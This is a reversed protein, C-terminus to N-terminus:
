SRRVAVSELVGLMAFKTLLSSGGSSVFPLTVGTVPLLRLNGGINVFLELSVSLLIGLVLFLTFDDGSGLALRYGRFIIIGFLICIISVGLFGMEEALVAFIFDTQREPLFRLQSQSGYGLGKGFLGGSGIAIISQTVNYGRGLPDSQPDWFALVRDKQYPQLVLTWAFVSALVTLLIAAALHSRRIGSVLLMSGWIGLLLLASGMDPQLTVLLIITGVLLGSGLIRRYGYTDRRYDSFFKALFVILLLKVIEVPQFGLGGVRFWGTTGRITEGFLLVGVLLLLSLVFLARSLSALARYNLTPILLALVVGACAFVVQKWFQSLDATSGSDGLPGAYELGM